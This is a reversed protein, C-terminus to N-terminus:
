EPREAEREIAKRTVARPSATGLLIVLVMFTFLIGVVQMPFDFRAHVLLGGISIWLFACFSWPAPIGSQFLGSLLAAGLLSMVLVFGVWGLSLRTELYDDHVYGEWRDKLDQRYLYNLTPYTEAGSGFVPFDKAMLRGNEWLRERGTLDSIGRKEFREMMLDGGTYAGLALGGLMAVGLTLRLGWSSRRTGLVLLVVVAALQLALILFGGRSGALVPVAALLAALPLLVM